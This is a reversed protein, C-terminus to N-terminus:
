KFLDKIHLPVMSGGCLYYKLSKLPKIEKFSELAALFYPATLLTTVKYKEVIEIFLKPSPTRRTFVRTQNYLAGTVLWMFGTIWYFTAFNFLVHNEADPLV